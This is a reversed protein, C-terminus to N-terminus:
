DNEPELFRGKVHTFVEDAISQIDRGADIVVFRDPDDQSMELFGARIQEHYTLGKAEFRAAGGRTAARELGLQAPLDMLFTLDPQTSGIVPAQLRDIVDLGLDGAIGQYARTSDMYRDCLVWVGQELQPRIMDELHIARDALMMLAEAMAPWRDADGTVLLERLAQGRPTGGPERTAINNIGAVGLRGSLLKIQTSKGAGEGGEFTIFRASEM